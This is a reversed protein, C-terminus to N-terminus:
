GFLLYSSVFRETRIGSPGSSTSWSWTPTTRWRQLWVRRLSCSPGCISSKDGSRRTQMRGVRSWTSSFREFTTRLWNAPGKTWWSLCCGCQTRGRIPIKQVSCPWSAGWQQEIRRSWPHCSLTAEPVVAWRTPLRRRGSKRWRTCSPKARTRRPPFIRCSRFARIRRRPIVIWRHNRLATIKFKQRRRGSPDLNRPFTSLIGNSNRNFCCIISTFKKLTITSMKTTKWRNPRDCNPSFSLHPRSRTVWRHIRNRRNRLQRLGWRPCPWPRHRHITDGEWILTTWREISIRRFLKRPVTRYHWSFQM